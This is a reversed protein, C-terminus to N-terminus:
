SSLVTIGGGGSNSPSTSHGDLSVSGIGLSDGQGSARLKGAESVRRDQQTGVSVTWQLVHVVNQFPSGVISWMQFCSIDPFM